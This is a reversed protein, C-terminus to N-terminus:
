RGFRGRNNFWRKEPDEESISAPCSVKEEAKSVKEADYSWGILAAMLLLVVVGGDYLKM